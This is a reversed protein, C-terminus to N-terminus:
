LPQVMLLAGASVRVTVEQETTENSLGLDGPRWELEDLPWKLGTTSMRCPGEGLPFFSVMRGEGTNITHDATLRRLIANHTIWLSPSHDRHFLSVLALLHDLRGGGGGVIVTTFIGCEALIGLALETDTHDKDRPHRFVRDGPLDDLLGPNEISDFDGVAFDPSLGLRAANDVGSDAAVVLTPPTLFPEIVARTPIKGGTVVVGLIDQKM